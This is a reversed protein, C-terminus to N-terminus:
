HHELKKAEVIPGLALGIVQVAQRKEPWERHSQEDALDPSAGGPWLKPNLNLTLPKLYIYSMDTRTGRRFLYSRILFGEDEKRFITPDM